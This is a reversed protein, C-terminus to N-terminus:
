YQLFIGFFFFDLSLCYFILCDHPMRFMNRLTETGERSEIGYYNWLIELIILIVKEWNQIMKQVTEQVELHSIKYYGFLPPIRPTLQFLLVIELTSWLTYCLKEVTFSKIKRFKWPYFNFKYSRDLFLWTSNEHTKTKSRPIELPHLVIKCFKWPYLFSQNSWFKWPYLSLDLLDLTRKLSLMDEVERNPNKQFSRVIM